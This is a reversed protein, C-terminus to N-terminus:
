RGPDGPLGMRPLRGDLGHLSWRSALLYARQRWTFPELYAQEDPQEKEEEMKQIYQGLLQEFGQKAMQEKTLQKNLENIKQDIEQMYVLCSQCEASLENIIYQKDNYTLKDQLNYQHLYVIRMHKSYDVTQYLNAM